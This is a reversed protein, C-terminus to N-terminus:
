VVEEEVQSSGGVFRGFAVAVSWGNTNNTDGVSVGLDWWIAKRWTVEENVRAVEGIEASARFNLTREVREFGEDFRPPSGVIPVAVHNDNRSIM